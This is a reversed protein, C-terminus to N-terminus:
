DNASEEAITVSASINRLGSIIGRLIAETAEPECLEPVKDAVTEIRRIASGLGTRYGDLFDEANM